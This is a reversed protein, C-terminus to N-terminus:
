NITSPARRFSKAQGRGGIDQLRNRLADFVGSHQREVTGDANTVNVQVQGGLAELTLGTTQNLLDAM